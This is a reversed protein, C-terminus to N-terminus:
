NGGRHTPTGDSGSASKGSLLQFFLVSKQNLLRSDSERASHSSPPHFYLGSNQNAPPSPALLPDIITRWDELTWTPDANFVNVDNVMFTPTGAVGRTCCYKWEIRTDEEVKANDILQTFVSSPVGIDAALKGLLTVVELDSMDHTAANTLTEINGYLYEFWDYTSNGNSVMNVVHAGKAAYFGNRHYPLPFLHTTLQLKEPGYYDAVKLMTPFAAKSDPCVLDIYFDLHVSANAQGWGFVFGVKRRPIPIQGEVVVVVILAALVFLCLSKM